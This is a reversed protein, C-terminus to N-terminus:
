SLRGQLSGSFFPGLSCSLLQIQATYSEKVKLPKVLLLFPLLHRTAEPLFQIAM